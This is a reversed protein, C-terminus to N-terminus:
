VSGAFTIVHGVAVALFGVGVVVFFWGRFRVFNLADRDRRPIHLFKLYFSRELNLAERPHRIIWVGLSVAISAMALALLAEGVLPGPGASVYPPSRPIQSPLPM